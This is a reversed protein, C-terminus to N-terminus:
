DADPPPAVGVAGVTRPDFAAPIRHRGRSIRDVIDDWDEPRWLHSEVVPRSGDGIAIGAQEALAVLAEVHRQVVALADLWEVQDPRPRGAAGRATKLEAFLLEGDRVAVIDPFGAASRESNHTHYVRWGYFGLLSEIWQQFVDERLDGRATLLTRPQRAKSPASTTRRRRTTM